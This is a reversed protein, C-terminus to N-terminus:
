SSSLYVRVPQHLLIQTSFGRSVLLPYQYSLEVSPFFPLVSFVPIYDIIGLYIREPQM